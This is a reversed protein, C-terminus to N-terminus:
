RKVRLMTSLLGPRGDGSKMEIDDVKWVGAERVFLFVNRNKENFNKFAVVVRAKDGTIAAPAVVIDALENDQGNVIFDADIACPAGGSRKKCADDQRFLGALRKSARRVVLYYNASRQLTEDKEARKYLDYLSRVWVGPDAEDPNFQARAPAGLLVAGFMLAVLFRLTLPWERKTMSAEMPM